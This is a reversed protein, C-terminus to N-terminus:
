QQWCFLNSTLPGSNQLVTQFLGARHDRGEPHEDSVLLLHSAVGGRGRRRQQGEQMCTAGELVPRRAQRHLALLAESLPTSFSTVTTTINTLM